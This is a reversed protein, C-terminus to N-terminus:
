EPTHLTMMTLTGTDDFFCQLYIPTDPVKAFKAIRTYAQRGDKERGVSEELVATEAGLQAVITDHTFRLKDPSGLRKKMAESAANWLHDVDGGYLWVVDQRGKAMLGGAAAHDATRRAAPSPAPAAPTAAPAPAPSAAAPPPAQAALPATALFLALCSATKM